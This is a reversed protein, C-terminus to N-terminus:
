DNKTEEEDREVIFNLNFRKCWDDYDREFQQQERAELEFAKEM